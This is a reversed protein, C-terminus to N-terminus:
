IKGKKSDTDKGEDKGEETASGHALVTCWDVVRPAAEHAAAAPLSRRSGHALVTCWDVGRSAAKLDKM